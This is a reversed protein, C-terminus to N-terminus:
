QWRFVELMDQLVDHEGQTGKINVADPGSRSVVVRVDGPALVDYLIRAKEYDLTYTKKFREGEIMHNFTDGRRTWNLLQLGADLADIEQQTGRVTVRNNERSVIVTVNAPALANYLVNAQQRNLRYENVAEYDQTPPANPRPTQQGTWHRELERQWDQWAEAHRKLDRELEEYQEKAEQQWHHWRGRWEDAYRRLQDSPPADPAMPPRPPAPLTITRQDLRDEIRELMAALDALQSEVSELRQEIRKLEIDRSSESRIRRQSQRPTDPHQAFVAVPSLLTAVIM